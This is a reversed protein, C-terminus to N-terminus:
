VQCQVGDALIEVEAEAEVEVEALVFYHDYGVAHYCCYEQKHV